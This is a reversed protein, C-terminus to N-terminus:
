YINAKMNNIYYVLGCIKGYIKLYSCELYQGADLIVFVLISNCSDFHALSNNISNHMLIVSIALDLKRQMSIKFPIIM